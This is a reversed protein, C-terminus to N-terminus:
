NILRKYKILGEKEENRNLKIDNKNKNIMVEKINDM